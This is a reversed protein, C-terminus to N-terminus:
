PADKCPAPEAYNVTKNPQIIVMAFYQGYNTIAWTEFWEEGNITESVEVTGIIPVNEGTNYYGM